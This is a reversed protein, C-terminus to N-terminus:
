LNFDGIKKLPIPLSWSFHWSISAFGIRWNIHIEDKFGALQNVKRPLFIVFSSCSVRHSWSYWISNLFTEAISLWPFTGARGRIKLKSISTFEFLGFTNGCDEWGSSLTKWIEQTNPRFPSESSFYSLYIRVKHLFLFPSITSKFISFNPSPISTRPYSVSPSKNSPNLSRIISFFGCIMQPYLIKENSIVYIYSRELIQLISRWNM